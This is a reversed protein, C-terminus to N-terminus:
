EDSKKEADKSGVVVEGEKPPFQDAVEALVVKADLIEELAVTAIKTNMPVDILKPRGEALESARTSALRVLKFISGGTKPLLEEMPQYEM